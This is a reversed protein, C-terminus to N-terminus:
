TDFVLHENSEHDLVVTTRKMRGVSQCGQIEFFAETSRSKEEHRYVPQRYPDRFSAEFARQREAHYAQRPNCHAFRPLKGRTRQAKNSIM